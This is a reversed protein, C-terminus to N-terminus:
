KIESEYKINKNENIYYATFLAIILAFATGNTKSLIYYNGMMLILFIMIISNKIISLYNNNFKIKYFYYIFIMFLLYGIMGYQTMIFMHGNHFSKLNHMNSKFEDKYEERIRNVSLTIDAVSGTGLFPNEKVIYVGTKIMGIRFGSSTNNNNNFISNEINIIMRNLENKIYISKSSNLLLYVLSGIVFIAIIFEKKNLLKFLVFSIVIIMTIDSARGHTVPSIVTSYVFFFFLLIYMSMRLYNTNKYNSIGLVLFVISSMLIYVNTGLDMILYKCVFCYYGYHNAYINDTIGYMNTYNLIVYIIPAFVFAMFFVKFQKNSFNSLYIGIIIMPYYKFYRISEKLTGNDSWLFSMYTLIVFITLYKIYNLKFLAKVNTQSAILGCVLILM